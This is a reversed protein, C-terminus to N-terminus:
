FTLNLKGNELEVQRNLQYFISDACQPQNINKSHFIFGFSPNGIFNKYKKLYRVPCYKPNEFNKAINIYQRKSGNRYSKSIRSRIQVFSDFEIMDEWRLKNVDAWRFSSCVFIFLHISAM